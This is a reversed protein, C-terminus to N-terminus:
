ASRCAYAITYDSGTLSPYNAQVTQVILDNAAQRPTKGQGDVTADSGDVPMLTGGALAASDVADVLIQRNNRLVGLDVVIAAFALIVVLSMAFLIM